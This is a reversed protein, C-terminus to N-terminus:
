GTDEKTKDYSIGGKPTLKVIGAVKDLLPMQCFAFRTCLRHGHCILLQMVFSLWKQETNILSDLTNMGTTLPAHSDTEYAYISRLRQEIDGKSESFDSRWRRITSDDAACTEGGGDLVDQIVSSGYHKYPQIFDPIETHLHKCSECWLRRLLYLAEERLEGLLIRPRSNRYKLISTCYPCRIDGQGLIKYYKKDTNFRIEFSSVIVM